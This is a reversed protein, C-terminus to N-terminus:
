PLKVETEKLSLGCHRCKDIPHIIIEGPNSFQPLTTSKHGRQGGVPLSSKLRLCRTRKPKRWPLDLSPPLNSNHSDNKIQSNGDSVLCNELDHIRKQLQDNLQRLKILQNSKNEITRNLNKIENQQAITTKQLSKFHSPFKQSLTLIEIQDEIQEVIGVASKFILEYHHCTTSLRLM